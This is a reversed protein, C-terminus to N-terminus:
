NENDIVEKLCREEIYGGRLMYVLLYGDMIYWSRSHLKDLFTDKVKVFTHQDKIKIVRGWVDYVEQEASDFKYIKGTKM